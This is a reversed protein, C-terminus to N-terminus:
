ELVYTIIFDIGTATDADGGTKGVTIATTADMEIWSSADALVTVGAAQAMSLVASQTLSAQAFAAIKVGGASQTGLLDVTATTGVAGGYAIAVCDIVRYSLGTVAALVEHGANIEAVTVRHRHSMVVSNNGSVLAVQATASPTLGAYTDLDADWAEVDVGIEVDLAQTAALYTASGLLSIMNASSTIVDMGDVATYYPITNAAGILAAFRGLDADYAQTNTGITLTLATTVAAADAANLITKVDATPTFTALYDLDADYAQADVGIEVDLAQTAALYTASGLLSVMNASSTIVNMADAATYYPITNAAGTLAAFRTLDADYAQADVGIEVDLAQTAALYTASGLLSIMNASSTLVAMTAAGTYYPLSNAAGVLAAFRDVDADWAQTNTGITLSLAINIAAVNAANLITKVDATPTFGSLYDLDADYAQVDVGIVQGVITATLSGVSLTEIYESTGMALFSCAFLTFITLLALIRKM